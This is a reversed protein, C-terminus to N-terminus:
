DNNSGFAPLASCEGTSQTKLYGRRRGHECDSAAQGIRNVVAGGLGFVVPVSVIM